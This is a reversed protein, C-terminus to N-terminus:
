SPPVDELEKRVLGAMRRDGMRDLLGLCEELVARGRTRGGEIGRARLAHGLRRLIRAQLVPGFREVMPRAGELLAVAREPQRDALALAARGIAAAALAVPADTKRGYEEAVTCVEECPTRRKGLALAEPLPFFSPWDMYRPDQLYRPLILAAVEAAEEVRELDVLHWVLQGGATVVGQDFRDLYYELLARGVGAASEWEGNLWYLWLESWQQNIRSLPRRLNDLFYERARDWEGLMVYSRGLQNNHFAIQETDRARGAGDRAEQMLPLANRPEGRAYYILALNNLARGLAYYGEVDSARRAIEIAEQYYTAADEMRGTNHWATLGLTTLAHAQVSLLGAERGLRLAERGHHEAANDEGLFSHARALDVHTQLIDDLQAAPDLRALARDLHTVARRFEWHRELAHGILRHIRAVTPEDGRIEYLGLAAEYTGVAEETKDLYALPLGLAVNVEAER